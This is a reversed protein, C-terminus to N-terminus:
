SKYLKAHLVRMMSFMTDYDVYCGQFKRHSWMSLKLPGRGHVLRRVDFNLMEGQQILYPMCFREDGLLESYRKFARYFNHVEDPLLDCLDDRGHTSFCIQEITGNKDM